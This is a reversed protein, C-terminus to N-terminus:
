LLNLRRSLFDALRYPLYRYFYYIIVSMKNSGEYRIYGVNSAGNRKAIRDLLADYKYDYLHSISSSYYELIIDLGKNLDCELKLGEISKLLKSNDFYADLTRDGLMMQCDVPMYKNIDEVYAEIYCPTVNLKRCLSEIIEKYTYKFSSVVNFDEAFARENNFLGVLARAFDRNQTLTILNNGKNWILLPKGNKIREIITRHYNYSPALGYPVRREDYTIYPRAITYTCKCNIALRKLEEEAEYKHVNYSWLTNPKPSDEVIPFDGKDRKFVCCSSIFIYQKCYLSLIPFLRAIDERTRSLFDVVIDFQNGVIAQEIQIANKFDAILVSVSQPLKTNNTGRNLVSVRFGRDLCEHLVASSITGTGGLLLINLNYDM